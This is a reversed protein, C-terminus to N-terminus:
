VSDGEHKNEIKDDNLDELFKSMCKSFYNKYNDDSILDSKANNCLSCALRCNKESYPEKPRLREIHLTENFKTSNLKEKFLQELTNADINCYYCKNYDNLM